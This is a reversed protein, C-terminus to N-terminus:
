IAKPSNEKRALFSTERGIQLGKLGLRKRQILSDLNELGRKRPNSERTETQSSEITEFIRRNSSKAVAIPRNKSTQTLWISEMNPLDRQSNVTDRLQYPL